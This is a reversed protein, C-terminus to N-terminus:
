WKTHTHHCCTGQREKCIDLVCYMIILQLWCGACRNGSSIWKITSLNHGQGITTSSKFFVVPLGLKRCPSAKLFSPFYFIRLVLFVIIIKWKWIYRWLIAYYAIWVFLFLYTICAQLKLSVLLFISHTCLPILLIIKKEWSKRLDNNINSASIIVDTKISM